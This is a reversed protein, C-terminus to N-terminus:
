GTTGLLGQSFNQNGQQPLLNMPNQVPAGMNYPIGYQNFIPGYPNMNPQGMGGTQGMSPFSQMTPDPFGPNGAPRQPFYGPYGSNGSVGGLQGMGPFQSPMSPLGVGPQRMGIQNMALDFAQQGGMIDQQSTSNVSSIPMSGYPRMPLQQQSLTQGGITPELLRSPRMPPQGIQGMPQAPMAGSSGAVAQQAAQMPGTNQQSKRRGVAQQFWNPRAGTFNFPMM